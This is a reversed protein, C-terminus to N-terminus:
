LPPRNNRLRPPLTIADVMQNFYSSPLQAFKKAGTDFKFFRSPQSPLPGTNPGDGEMTEADPMVKISLPGAGFVRTVSESGHRYQYLGRFQKNYEDKLLVVFHSADVCGDGEVIQVTADLSPKNIAGPLCVHKLANVIQGKNNRSSATAAAGPARAPNSVSRRRAAPKPAAPSPAGGVQGEPDGTSSVVASPDEVPPLRVPKAAEARQQQRRDAHRQKLKALQATSLQPGAGGRVGVSSGLNVDFATSRPPQGAVDAPEPATAGRGNHGQVSLLNPDPTQSSPASGPVNARPRGQRLM